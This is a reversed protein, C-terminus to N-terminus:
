ESMKKRKKRLTSPVCHLSNEKMREKKFRKEGKQVEGNAEQEEGRQGPGEDAAGRYHGTQTPAHVPWPQGHVVGPHTQQHAPPSRLFCLGRAFMDVFTILWLSMSVSRKIFNIREYSSSESFLKFSLKAKSSTKKLLTIEGWLSKSSEQFRPMSDFSPRLPQVRTQLNSWTAAATSVKTATILPQVFQDKWRRCIPTQWVEQKCHSLFYCYKCRKSSRLLVKFPQQSLTKKHKLVAWVFHSFGLLSLVIELHIVNHYWIWHFNIPSNIHANQM